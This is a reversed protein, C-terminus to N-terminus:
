YTYRKSEIQEKSILKLTRRIFSMGTSFSADYTKNKILEEVADLELADNGMGCNPIHILSRGDRGLIPYVKDSTMHCDESRGHVEGSTGCLFYMDMDVLEKAMEYARDSPRRNDDTLELFDIPVNVTNYDSENKFLEMKKDERRYTIMEKGAYEKASSVYCRHYFNNEDYVEDIKELTKVRLKQGIIFNSNKLEEETM